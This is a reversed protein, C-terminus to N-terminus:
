DTILEFGEEPDFMLPYYSRDHHTMRMKVVSMFLNVNKEQRETNLHIIGDALFDEVGFEGFFEEGAPIESVLYVTLGLDRLREFFHFLQARPNKFKKLAYLGALSDIVISELGFSEKYNAATNLLSEIWDIKAASPSGEYEKRLKALDMVVLDEMDKVVVDEEDPRMGLKSMHKLISARSQELTLYISKQGENMSQNYIISFALTSKMTGAHGCILVVYGEPIGGELREDLGKVYTKLRVIEEDYQDKAV